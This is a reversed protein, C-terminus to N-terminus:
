PNPWGGGLARYLEVISLLENKRLQALTLEGSFQNREADLVQLYTDLGGRYRLTSLRDADRLADVLLQQQALQERNTQYDTLTNSVEQFATLITRRYNAVAELQQARTLRLNNRLQGANFIPLVAGPSIDQDRSPATFLNGLARSQVGLFGTLSIQPFFLAKAAGIQANAAILTQEAQRIDPRRELLDSPLGAPVRSPDNFQVLPKGRPIDGPNQGLLISLLNETEGIARATAAIQATATFLLEEAQRVDLGTVVGREKRLRTIKLGNEAIDKTKHGIEMELDLERLTLYTTVVDAILSSIVAHRAEEQALYQARASETLRRLRGWVDVEWSLNVGAQTYSQAPQVFNFQGNSSTRSSTYSGSASLQPALQSRTIGLQARAELVRQTVAQLDYSQRLATRVLNTVTEDHFLDAWALDALSSKDAPPNADAPAPQRYQAPTQVAPRKYNPGVACGALVVLLCAVACASRM